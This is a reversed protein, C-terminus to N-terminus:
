EWDRSVGIEVGAVENHLPIQIGPRTLYWCLVSEAPDLGCEAAWWLLPKVHINMYMYKCLLSGSAVQCHGQQCRFHQFISVLIGLYM